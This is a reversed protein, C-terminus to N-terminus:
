DVVVTNTHTSQLEDLHRQVMRREAEPGWVPSTGQRYVVGSGVLEAANLTPNRSLAATVSEHRRDMSDRHKGLAVGVDRDSRYPGKQHFTVRVDAPISAVHDLSRRTAALDAHADGYFPGFGSLDIDGLYLVGDPEIMLGCHGLTHGPLYVARVSVGGLDHSAELSLPSVEAIPRWNFEHRMLDPWRPDGYGCATAFSAWNSVAALDEVHIAAPKGSLAVGAVHDEHHHSLLFGDHDPLQVALTADLVLRTHAGTVILPGGAPYSRGSLPSLQEVHPGLRVYVGPACSAPV